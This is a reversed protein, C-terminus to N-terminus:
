FCLLSPLQNVTFLFANLYGIMVSQRALENSLSTLAEVSDLEFIRYFSQQFALGSNLPSPSSPSNRIPPAHVAFAVAISASIFISSGFNRILTFSRPPRRRRGEISRPVDRRTLPVWILSVGFGQHFLATWLM